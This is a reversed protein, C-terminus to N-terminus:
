ADWMRKDSIFSGFAFIIGHVYASDRPVLGNTVLGMAGQNSRLDSTEFVQDIVHGLEMGSNIKDMIKRSLEYRGSSGLGVIGNRDIVAIWGSEFYRGGIEQIGGEIGVTYEAEPFRLRAAKARNTAGLITEKDSMPQDSVLSPVSVGRVNMNSIQTFMQQISLEVARIKAANLSGVVVLM